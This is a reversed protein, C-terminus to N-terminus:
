QEVQQKIIHHALVAAGAAFSALFAAQGTPRHTGFLVRTVESLTSGDHKTARWADFVGLGGIAGIWFVPWRLATPTLLPLRTWLM